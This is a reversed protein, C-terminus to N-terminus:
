GKQYQARRSNIDILLQDFLHLNGLLKLLIQKEEEVREIATPLTHRTKEMEGVAEVRQLQAEQKDPTGLKPILQEAFLRRRSAAYRSPAYFNAWSAKRRGLDFLLDFEPLHSPLTSAVSTQSTVARADKIYSEDFLERDEAYRNSIEIGLNDITRAM